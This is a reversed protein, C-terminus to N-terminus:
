ERMERKHVIRETSMQTPLHAQLLQKQFEASHNMTTHSPAASSVLPVPITHIELKLYTSSKLQFSSHPAWKQSFVEDRRRQGIRGANESRYMDPELSAPNQPISYKTPLLLQVRTTFNKRPKRMAQTTSQAYSRNWITKWTSSTYKWLIAEQAEWSNETTSHM